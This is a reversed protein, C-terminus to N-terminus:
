CAKQQIDIIEFSSRKSFSWRRPRGSGNSRPTSCPARGIEVQGFDKTGLDGALVQEGIDKMPGKKASM